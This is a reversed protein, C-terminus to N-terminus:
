AQPEPDNSGGRGKKPKEDQSADRSPVADRQPTEAAAQRELDAARGRLENAYDQFRARDTDLSLDRMIRLTREAEDRLHAAEQM